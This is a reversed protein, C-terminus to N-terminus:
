EEGMFEELSQIKIKPKKKFNCDIREVLSVQLKPCAEKWHKFMMDADERTFYWGDWQCSWNDDVPDRMMIAYTM